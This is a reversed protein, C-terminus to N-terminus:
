DSEDDNEDLGLQHRQYAAFAPCKMCNCDCYKHHNCYNELELENM